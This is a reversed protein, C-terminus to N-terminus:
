KAKFPHQKGQGRTPKKETVRTIVDTAKPTVNEKQMRSLDLREKGKRLPIVHGTGGTKLPEIVGARKRAEQKM